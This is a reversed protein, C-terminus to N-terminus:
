PLTLRCFRLENTSLDMSILGSHQFLEDPVYSIRNFSAYLKVLHKANALSAPLTELQNFDVNLEALSPMFDGMTEPLERLPGDKVEMKKMATMSRISAPLRTMNHRDIQLVACNCSVRFQCLPVPVPCHKYLVDDCTPSVSVVLIGTGLFFLGALCSFGAIWRRALLPVSAGQVEVIKELASSRFLSERRRDKSTSVARERVVLHRTERVRVNDSMLAYIKLLICWSPWVTLMMMESM